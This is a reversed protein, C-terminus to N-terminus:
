WTVVENPVKEHLALVALVSAVASRAQESTLMSQYDHGMPHSAPRGSDNAMVAIECMRRLESSPQALLRETVAGVAAHLTPEDSLAV